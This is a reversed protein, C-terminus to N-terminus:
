EGAKLSLLYAVLDEVQEESLIQGFSPMIPVYEPVNFQYSAGAKVKELLYRETSLGPVREGARAAVRTLDPGRTGGTGAVTHCRFCGIDERLFLTKGREAAEQDKAEEQPQPLGFQPSAVAVAVLLSVTALYVGAVSVLVGLGSKPYPIREQGLFWFFITGLALAVTFFIRFGLGFKLGSEPPVLPLGVWLTLLLALQVRPLRKLWSLGNSVRAIRQQQSTQEPVTSM